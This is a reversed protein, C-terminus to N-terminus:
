PTRRKLEYAEMQEEIDKLLTAAKENKPGGEKAYSYFVLMKAQERLPSETYTNIMTNLLIRGEVFGKDSIARTGALFLQEARKTDRDTNASSKTQFALVSLSLVLILIFVATAKM